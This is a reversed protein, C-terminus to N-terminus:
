MAINSTHHWEYEVTIGRMLALEAATDTDKFKLLLEEMDDGKLYREVDRMMNGINKIRKIDDTNIYICITLGSRLSEDTVMWVNLLQNVGIIDIITNKVIKEFDTEDSMRGSKRLHTRYDDLMSEDYRKETIMESISKM